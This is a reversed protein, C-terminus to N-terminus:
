CLLNNNRAAVLLLQHSRTRCIACSIQLCHLAGPFSNFQQQLQCPFQLLVAAAVEAAERGAETAVVQRLLLMKVRAKSEVFKM